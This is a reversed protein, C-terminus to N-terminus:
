VLAALTFVFSLLLILYFGLFILVKHLEKLGLFDLFLDFQAYEAFDPWISRILIWTVAKFTLVGLIAVFVASLIGPDLPASTVDIERILWPFALFILYSLGLM